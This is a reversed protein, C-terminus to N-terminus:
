ELLAGVFKSVSRGLAPLDYGGELVSVLRSDSNDRALEAL